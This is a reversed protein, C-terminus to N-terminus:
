RFEVCLGHVAAPATWLILVESRPVFNAAAKVVNPCVADLVTQQGGINDFSGVTVSEDSSRHPVAILNFGRFTHGTKSSSLVVTYTQGTVYSNLYAAGRAVTIQYHNDSRDVQRFLSSSQLQSCLGSENPVQGINGAGKVTEACSAAFALFFVLIPGQNRFMPAYM